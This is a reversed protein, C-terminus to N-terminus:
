RSSPRFLDHPSVAAGRQLQRSGLSTAKFLTGYEFRGCDFNIRGTLKIGAVTVYSDEPVSLWEVDWSRECVGVVTGPPLDIGSISLPESTSPMELRELRGEGFHVLTGASLGFPGVRQATALTCTDLGDGSLVIENGGACAVTGITATEALM